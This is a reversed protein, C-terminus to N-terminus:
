VSNCQEQEECSDSHEAAVILEALREHDIYERLEYYRCLNDHGFSKEGCAPCTSVAVFDGKKWWCSGKPPVVIQILHHKDFWHEEDRVSFEKDCFNCRPPDRRYRKVSDHCLDSILGVDTSIPVTM